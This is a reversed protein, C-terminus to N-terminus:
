QLLVIRVNLSHGTHPAGSVPMFSLREIEKSNDEISMGVETSNQQGFIPLAM